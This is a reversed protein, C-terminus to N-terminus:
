IVDHVDWEDMVRKEGVEKSLSSSVMSVVIRHLDWRKLLGRSGQDTGEEGEILM